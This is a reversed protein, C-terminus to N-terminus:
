AGGLVPGSWGQLLVEGWGLGRLGGYLFDQAVNLADRRRLGTTEQALQM